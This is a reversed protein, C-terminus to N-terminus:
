STLASRATALGSRTSFNKSLDVRYAKPTDEANCVHGESWSLLTSGREFGSISRVLLDAGILHHMTAFTDTDVHVAVSTNAPAAAWAVEASARENLLSIM